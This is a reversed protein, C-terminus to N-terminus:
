EASMRSICEAMSIFEVSYDAVLRQLHSRLATVREPSIASRNGDMIEYPHFLWTFVAADVGQDRFAQNWRDMLDYRFTHLWMEMPPVHWLHGQTSTYDDWNDADHRYPLIGIPVDRNDQPNAPIDDHYEGPWVDSVVTYGLEMLVAYILPHQVLCGNRHFTVSGPYGQRVLWQSVLEQSRWCYARLSEREYQGAFREFHDHVGFTDGRRIIEHLFEEHNQTLAFDNENLFWTARGSLGEDAFVALLNDLSAQRVAVDDTRLDCDVTVLFLRQM